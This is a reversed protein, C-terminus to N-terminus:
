NYGRLHIFSDVVLETAADQPPTLVTMAVGDQCVPVPTGAALLPRYVESTENEAELWSPYKAQIAAMEPPPKTVEPPLKPKM